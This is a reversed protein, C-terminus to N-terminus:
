YAGPPDSPVEIGQAAFWARRAEAVVFLSGTALVLDDPEAEALAAQFMEAVGGQGRVQGGLREAVEAIEAAPTAKPHRAQCAYLGDAQAAVHTLLGEPDHTHGAGFVVLLRRYTLYERLAVLLREMSDGNHAGDVVV